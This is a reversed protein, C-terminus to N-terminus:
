AAEVPRLGRVAAVHAWRWVRPRITIHSFRVDHGTAAEEVEVARCGADGDCSPDGCTVFDALPLQRRQGEDKSLYRALPGLPGVRIVYWDHTRDDPAALSEPRPRRTHVHPVIMGPTPWYGKRDDHMWARVASRFADATTFAFADVWDAVSVGEPNRYANGELLSFAASVDAATVSM